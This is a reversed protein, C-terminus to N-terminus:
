KERSFYEKMQFTITVDFFKAFGNKEIKISGPQIKDYNKYIINIYYVCWFIWMFDSIRLSADHANWGNGISLRRLM